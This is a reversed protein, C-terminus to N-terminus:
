EDDAVSEMKESQPPATSGADEEEEEKVETENVLPTESAVSEGSGAKMTDLMRRSIEKSYVQLIEIGDDVTSEANGAAEFAEEEIRKAVDIAEERTITGYRKSLISPTSLTEILRNRVADRTRETPPWISFSANSYKAASASSTTSQPPSQETETMAASPPTKPPAELALDQLPPLDQTQSTQNSSEINDSM